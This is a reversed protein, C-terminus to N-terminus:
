KIERRWTEADNQDRFIAWTGDSRHVHQDGADVCWWGIFAKAYNVPPRTKPKKSPKPPPADPDTGPGYADWLDTREKLRLDWEADEGRMAMEFVKRATPLQDAPGVFWASVPTGERTTTIEVPGTVTKDQRLVNLARLLTGGEFEASGMYDMRFHQDVGKAEPRPNHNRKVRQILRIRNETDIM